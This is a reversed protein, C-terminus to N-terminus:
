EVVSPVSGNKLYVREGPNGRVAGWPLVLYINTSVLTRLTLIFAIFYLQAVERRGM